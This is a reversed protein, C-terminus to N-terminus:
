KNRELFANIKQKTEESINNDYKSYLGDMEAKSIGIEEYVDKRSIGLWRAKM